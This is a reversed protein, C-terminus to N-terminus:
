LFSNFLNGSSYTNSYTGDYTYTNAKSAETDAAFNILSAQASVRYAFSGNGSFLSKATNMDAKKFTDEDISLSYDDNITIGVKELLKANAVTATILGTSRSAISATNSTETSKIVANYDTVFNNVAKYIADTDYGRKATEVGNEDKTTIEKENFVSKSGSVLLADASEKLADTTKQIEALSETSDKSTSNNSSAKNVIDSAKGTENYYAKMM